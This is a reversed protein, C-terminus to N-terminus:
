LSSAYCEKWSTGYVFNSYDLTTYNKAILLSNDFGYIMNYNWPPVWFLLEKKPGLVWGGSISYGDKFLQDQKTLSQSQTNNDSSESEAINWVRITKDDSCSVIKKGDPSFRVCYIWDTHGVFKRVATYGTEVSWMQIIGDGSGSILYKGDPSFKLTTVSETHGNLPEGITKGTEVDWIMIKNDEAGSAITKNDPSVTVTEIFDSHGEFKSLEQGTESNWLRITKDNAGYIFKTGDPFFSVAGRGGTPCEPKLVFKANGSEVDWVRATGDSSGSLISKDDPSLNIDNIWNTHGTFPGAIMKRTEISWIRITRDAASSIITKGDSSVALSKIANTHGMMPQGAPKGTELDWMRISTDLAGSVIHKGDPLFAVAVIPETHGDFDEIVANDMEADWIRITKDLSGSVIIKGDPSSTVCCVDSTHGELYGAVVYDKDVDWISIQKDLSGAIIKKGDPSFVLSVVGGSHGSIQGTIAEGTEVNWILIKWDLGGSAVSKGDPSFTVCRVGDYHANLPKGVLQKTETNWIRVMKDDAGSAIHKGDPSFAVCRVWDTHGVLTDLTIGTESDLVVVDKYSGFAVHKGDPSFAVAWIGKSTEIPGAVKNGTEVDWIRITKDESASAIHKGDPSFVVSMVCDTHEKIPGVVTQGTRRDWIRITQDCSGSAFLNGTPSFALSNVCETHGDLVNKVGPWNQAKGTKVSLTNGFKDLYLKALISRKPMFPLASLYIHPVSETIVPWFTAIFQQSDSALAATESDHDQIWAILTGLSSVAVKVFKTLSLVELWYLLRSDMFEKLGACIANNFDTRKLHDAWFQCAYLIYPSIHQQIKTDLDTVDKNRQFSTELQCINFKLGKMIELCASVINHHETGTEVYFCGSRDKNTLFDRFSTHLTQIPNSESTVGSLLAGLPQLVARINGASKGLSIRHLASMPLPKKLTLVTRMISVFRDIKAQDNASIKQELIRFYLVDLNRTQVSPEVLTRLREVPTYFDEKIFLCATFAWQFLGESRDVLLQCWAKDPWEEDLAAKKRALETQIFQSIDNRTSVEDITEMHKCLVHAQGQLAELIDPEPRSTILVRFNAPLEVIRESLIMLLPKRVAPDGCEDLADIVVVVPGAMKLMKAPSVLFSEFQEIVSLSSQLAPADKIVAWLEQKWMLDFNALNWSITSFLHQPGRVAQSAVDFCFSSGLRRMAQFRHAVTHAIASKGSGAVGTLWFIQSASVSPPQNAWDMIEDIIGLRTNPLCGKDSNHRSGPAHPIKDIAIDMALTDLKDHTSLTAFKIQLVTVNTRLVTHNQFDAKLKNFTEQYEKIKQDAESVSHKLTREWFNTDAAYACIFHACETTQQALLALIKVQADFRLGETKAILKNISELQSAEELFDYVGNLVALLEKISDDRNTQDIMFKSAASLIGWAAKSYPHIEAIASMLRNFREVKSLLDEWPPRELAEYAKGADAICDVVQTAAPESAVATTATNISSSVTPTSEPKENSPQGKINPASLKATEQLPEPKNDLSEDVPDSVVHIAFSVTRQHAQLDGSANQKFLNASVTEGNSGARFSEVTKEISGLFRDRRISHEEYVQIKLMASGPSDFSLTEHGGRGDLSRCKKVDGGVNIKAYIKRSPFKPWLTGDDGETYKLHGITFKM